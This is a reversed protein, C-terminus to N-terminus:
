NYILIVMILQKNLVKINAVSTKMIICLTFAFTFADLLLLYRQIQNLVCQKVVLLLTNIIAQLVVWTQGMPM